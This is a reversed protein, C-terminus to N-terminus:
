SPAVKDWPPDAAQLVTDLHQQDDLQRHGLGLLDLFHQNWMRLRGDQDVMSIGQQMNQLTTELLASKEETERRLAINEFRLRLSENLVRHVNSLYILHIVLNLAVLIALAIGVKGGRLWLVATLSTLIPVAFTIYALPYSAFAAIGGACIGILILTIAILSTPQAFDLFLIPAGCWIMGFLGVLVATLVGWQPAAEPSPPHQRYARIFLVRVIVMSYLAALWVLLSGHPATDWLVFVLFAGTIAHAIIITIFTPRFLTRIHEAQIDAHPIRHDLFTM